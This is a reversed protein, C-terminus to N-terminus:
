QFAVSGGEAWCACGFAALLVGLWVIPLSHRGCSALHRWVTSRRWQGLGVRGAIIALALFNVLRLWHLNTKELPEFHVRLAPFAPLLNHLAGSEQVVAAFVVILCASITVHRWRLISQRAKSSAAVVGLVFLFQWALPNFTWIM